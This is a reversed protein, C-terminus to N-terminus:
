NGNTAGRAQQLQLQSQWLNTLATNLGIQNNILQQELSSESSALNIKFQILNTPISVIQNLLDLPIQVFGNIESPKDYAASVLFGNNFQLSATRTVFVGRNASLRFIPARNPALVLYKFDAENPKGINCGITMQYPLMPRYLVGDLKNPFPTAYSKDIQNAILPVCELRVYYDHLVLAANHVDTPDAPDFIVEVHTPYATGVGPMAALKAAQIAINGLTQVINATQDANSANVSSIFGNSSVTVAYQDDYLPNHTLKLSFLFSPDPMTVTQFTATYFQNTSLNPSPTVVFTSASYGNTGSTFTANTLNSVASYINTLTWNTSSNFGNTTVINTLQLSIDVEVKPLFYAVGDSPYKQDQTIQKSKIAACGMLVSFSAALSGVAIVANRPMTSRNSQNTTM